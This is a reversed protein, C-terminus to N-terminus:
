TLVCHEIRCPSFGPADKIRERLRRKFDASNIVQPLEGDTFGHGREREIQEIVEFAAPMVARIADRGTVPQAQAQISAILAIVFIWNKM